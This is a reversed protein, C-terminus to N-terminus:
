NKTRNGCRLNMCWCGTTEVCMRHAFPWIFTMTTQGLSNDQRESWVAPNDAYKTGIRGVVDMPFVKKM